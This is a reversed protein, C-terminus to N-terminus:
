VGAYYWLLETSAKFWGLCVWWKPVMRKGNVRVPARRLILVGKGYGCTIFRIPTINTRLNWIGHARYTSLTSPTKRWWPVNTCADWHFVFIKWKQLTENRWVTAMIKTLEYTQDISTSLTRLLFLNDTLYSEFLQILNSSVQLISIVVDHMQLSKYWLFIIHCCWTIVIFTPGILRGVVMRRCITLCKGTYDLHSKTATTAFIRCCVHNWWWCSQWCWIEHSRFCAM